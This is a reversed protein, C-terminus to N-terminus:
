PQEGKTPADALLEAQHEAFYSLGKKVTAVVGRPTITAGAFQNFDGGDKKVAWHTPDPNKLSKGNFSFIWDSKAAEIKDGLGPTEIHHTVRVGLVTGERDVAMVIALPGGYGKGELEFLIAKIQGNYRARYITLPLNDPGKSHQMDQLLNNNAYGSPLVQQLSQLTDKETAAIIETKTVDYVAALVATVLLGIVGLSAGQFWIEDLKTRLNM